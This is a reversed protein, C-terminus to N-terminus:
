QGAAAASAGARSSSGSSSASSREAGTGASSGSSAKADVSIGYFTGGGGASSSSSVTASRSGDEQLQEFRYTFNYSPKTKVINQLCISQYTSTAISYGRGLVPTIALDTVRDDRIATPGASAHHIPLLALASISLLLRRAIVNMPGRVIMYPSNALYM